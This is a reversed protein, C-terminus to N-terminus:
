DNQEIAGSKGKYLDIPKALEIKVVRGLGIKVGEPFDIFRTPPIHNWSAGGVRREKLQVRPDGVLSIKKPNNQLGKIMLGNIPNSFVFLYLTKRDKSLTSSGAYHNKHIGSITGYIAEGNQKMFRGIDRLREQQWEPITGDPRPGVNLLLNGGMSACDALIQIIDKAPIQQNLNKELRANYGWGPGMTMCLEWPADLSKFPVGQEPTEYDGYGGMRSNLIVGQDWKKLKERFSKMGWDNPDIGWDGDFWLLDPKYNKCLEKLQMEDFAVFRKWQEVTQPDRQKKSKDSARWRGLAAYDPNSWDLWSYYLGVKLGEKRVANVFPQVLDRQAPTQTVVSLIKGDTKAHTDWLAMGDHHKTTLVAYRAGAEKFLKAWEQPDYKSATFKKAQAMYDEYSVKENFIPWSAGNGDVAFIGWHIFIGFKADKFWQMDTSSSETNKAMVVTPFLLCLLGLSFLKGCKRCM